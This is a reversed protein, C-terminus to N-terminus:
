KRTLFDLVAKGCSLCESGAGRVIKPVHAILLDTIVEELSSSELSIHKKISDVGLYEKLKDAHVPDLRVGNQALYVVNVPNTGDKYWNM